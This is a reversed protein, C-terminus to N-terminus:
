ESRKKQGPQPLGGLLEREEGRRQNLGMMMLLYTPLYAEGANTDGKRM